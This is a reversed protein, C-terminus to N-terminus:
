QVVEVLLRTANGSDEAALIGRVYGFLEQTAADSRVALKGALNTLETHLPTSANLGQALVVTGGTGADSTTIPITFKTTSTVTIVHNGNITTPTNGAVGAITVIQGSTLGHAASTTIETPGAESIASITLASIQAVILDPGEVEYEEVLRASVTANLPEPSLLANNFIIQDLPINATALVERELLGARAKGTALAFAMDNNFVGTKGAISAPDLVVLLGAVAAVGM